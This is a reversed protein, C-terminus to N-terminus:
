SFPTPNTGATPPDVGVGMPAAVLPRSHLPPHRSHGARPTQTPRRGARSSTGSPAVVFPIADPDNQAEIAADRLRPLDLKGVIDALYRVAFDETVHDQSAMGAVKADQLLDIKPAVGL